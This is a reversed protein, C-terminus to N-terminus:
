SAREAASARAVVVAVAAEAATEIRLVHPALRARVAGAADLAADEAPSFGGEPGIWLRLPKERTGTPVMAAVLTFLAPRALPDLVLDIHAPRALIAALTEPAHIEAWWLRGSQKCAERAIRELREARRDSEGRAGPAAREAALPRIAAVGLQVLRDVMAEARDGRPLASVVEIWPLRAGVEGPAPEVQPDGECEVQFERADSRRVVLPWAAGQGDLGVLRDGAVLRLVRRAHEIEGDALEARRGSPPGTLAFRRLAADGTARPSM